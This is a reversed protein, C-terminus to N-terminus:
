RRRGRKVPRPTPRAAGGIKRREAGSAPAESTGSASAPEDDGSRATPIAAETAGPAADPSAARDAMASTEESPAAPEDSPAVAVESADEGTTVPEGAEAAGSAPAEVTAPSPNVVSVSREPSSAPSATKFTITAAADDGTAGADTTTKAPAGAAIAMPEAIGAPETEEPPTPADATDDTGAADSRAPADSADTLGASAEEPVDGAPSAPAPDEGAAGPDRRRFLRSVRSPGEGGSARATTETAAAAGDTAPEAPAGPTTATDDAAKDSAEQWTQPSPRTEGRTAEAVLNAAAAFAAEAANPRETEVLDSGAETSPETPATEPATAEEPANPEPARRRRFFGFRSRKEAVAAEPAAPALAESPQTEAATESVAATETTEATVAAATADVPRIGVDTTTEGAPASADAAGDPKPDDGAPSTADPAAAPATTAPTAAKGKPPAIKIRPPAIETPLRLDSGPVFADFAAWFLTRFGTREMLIEHRAGPIMVRGGGRLTRAFREIAKVSVVTDMGCAVVLAPIKLEDGFGPENLTRTARNAAAYWRVTPAGLGLRPEAQLVSRTRAFRKRDSTVVNTEFPADQPAPARGPRVSSRALGIGAAIGAANKAWRSSARKDALEILPATLVMREIQGALRGAALLAVAGGMSHALLYFPRPLGRLAAAAVAAELDDVYDDFSAVHGKSVNRLLRSSGGQGRWDFAAVAFGRAQIDEVTEFYKEIFEARGTAIIVTGQPEDVPAPWAAFRLWVKGKNLYLWDTEGGKPLPNAVTDVLTPQAQPDAMHPAKSIKCGPFLLGM